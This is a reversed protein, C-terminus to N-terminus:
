AMKLVTIKDMGLGTLSSIAEKIGLAVQPNEAGQCSVVAGRFEPYIRKVTLPEEDSGQKRLVTQIERETEGDQNRSSEDYLYSRSGDSELTFLVQVQGAGSVRSLLAEASQTFAELDFEERNGDAAIANVTEDSKKQSQNGVPLLMLFIGVVLVLVPYRYRKGLHKLKKGLEQTKREVM